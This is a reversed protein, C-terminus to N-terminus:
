AIAGIPNVWFASSSAYAFGKLIEGWEAAVFRRDAPPTVGFRRALASVSESSAAIKARVAM